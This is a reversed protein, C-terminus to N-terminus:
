HLEITDNCGTHLIHWTHLGILDLLEKKKKLWNGFCSVAYNNEAVLWLMYPDIKLAPLSESHCFSSTNTLRSASHSLGPGARRRHSEHWITCRGSWERLRSLFFLERPHFQFHSFCTAKEGLDVLQWLFSGRWESDVFCLILELCSNIMHLVARHGWWVGSLSVCVRM